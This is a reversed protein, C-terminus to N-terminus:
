SDPLPRPLRSHPRRAEVSRKLGYLVRGLEDAQQLFAVVTSEKLVSLRGGLQVFTEAERLSGLAVILFHAFEGPRYRGHGEAINAAISAAARELQSALSGLKAARLERSIAFAMEALVMARQWAILERYSGTKV